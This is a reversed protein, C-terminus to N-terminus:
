VEELIVNHLQPEAEYIWDPLGTIEKIRWKGDMDYMTFMIRNGRDDVTDVSFYAASHINHKLFNFERLRQHAKLVRTFQIKKVFQTFM